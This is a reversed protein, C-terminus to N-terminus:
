KQSTVLFISYQMLNIILFINILFNFSPLEQQPEVSVFRLLMWSSAPEIGPRAQHSLSRANSHSHCLGAASARIQGRAWSSGYTMPTATFLFFFSLFFFSLYHFACWTGTVWHIFHPNHTSGGWDEMQNM